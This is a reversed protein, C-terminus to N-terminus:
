ENRRTGNGTSRKKVGPLWGFFASMFTQARHYDDPHRLQLMELYHFWLTLLVGILVAGAFAGAVIFSRRPRSKERPSEARDLISLSPEDAYQQIKAQELQQLLGAYLREAVQVRSYLVEYKGKLTPIRSIPLSFFSNDDNATELQELKDRIITRQRRLERVEAHEESLSQRKLELQIEVSALRTKLDIAQEVALRSQQDFDVARNEMQFREFAARASDVEERVQQVRDRLFQLNRRAREEVIRRNLEELEDVFANAMLAATDPSKDEVKIELLGEATVSFETLRELEEYADFKHDVDYREILNFQAIVTDAITRSRMMRAYVDSPTAMVPLDLGEIVSVVENLQDLGAVPMTVNKPPLLVARAQYWTPLLLSIVVAIITVVGIFALLFARRRAIAELVIWLNSGSPQTM